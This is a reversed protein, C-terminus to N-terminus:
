IMYRFFKWKKCGWILFSHILLILDIYILFIMDKYKLFNLENYPDYFGVKLSLGYFFICILIFTIFNFIYDVRKIEIQSYSTRKGKGYGKSYLAEARDLSGELTSILIVKLFPYYMKVKKFINKQNFNVGRLIMVDRVRVIELRLRHLINTTMSLTLTFKHAFRSFFSFSDDSDIMLSYLLFILVICILKLGMNAGFVISELTIRIKGIIPIRSSKYIITRGYHTVLPNIMMIWFASYLSYIISKKLNKGGDLLLINFIVIVVISFIYIPNSYALTLLFLTATYFIVTFPHMNLM